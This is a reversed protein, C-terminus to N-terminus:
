LAAGLETKCQFTCDNLGGVQLHFVRYSAAIFLPPWDKLTFINLHVHERQKLPLQTELERPPKFMEADAKRFPYCKPLGLVGRVHGPGKDWGARGKGEHEM